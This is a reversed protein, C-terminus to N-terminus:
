KEHLGWLNHTSGGNIERSLAEINTLVIVEKDYKIVNQQRLREIERTVSERSLNISAALDKQTMQPLVVGQKTKEGFRAALFLLRYALRERAFKYELNDIRDAYTNFQKLVLGLIDYSFAANTKLREFFKNIPICQVETDTMAGYFVSRNAEKGILSSLPFIEGPRYIIHIYEENQNNIAFVKVLGSTIRYIGRPDEGPRQIMEGKPFTFTRAGEFLLANDPFPIDPLTM